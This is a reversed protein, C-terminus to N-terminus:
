ASPELGAKIGPMDEGLSEFSYTGAREGTNAKGIWAAQHELHRVALALAERLRVVEREAAVAREVQKEVVAYAERAEQEWSVRWMPVHCNPCSDPDNNAYANGDVVNLTTKVLRFSCKACTLVGPVTTSFSLTGPIPLGDIKNPGPEAFADLVVTLAPDSSLEMLSGIFQYAYGLMDDRWDAPELLPEVAENSLAAHLRRLDGWTVQCDPDPGAPEDDRAETSWGYESTCADLLKRAEVRINGERGLAKDIAEIMKFIAGPAVGRAPNGHALLEGIDASIGHEALAVLAATAATIHAIDTM